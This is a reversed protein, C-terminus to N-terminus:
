RYYNRSVKFYQIDNTDKNSLEFIAFYDDVDYNYNLEPRKKLVNVQLNGIIHGKKSQTIKLFNVKRPYGKTDDGVYVLCVSRNKFFGKKYRLLKTRIKRQTFSSYPMKDVAEVFKKIENRSHFVKHTKIANHLEFSTEISEGKLIAKREKFTKITVTLAAKIRKDSKISAYIKVKGPRKGTVVGLKSVIAIKSNASKWTIKSRMEKPFVKLKIRQRVYIIKKPSTIKLDQANAKVDTIL